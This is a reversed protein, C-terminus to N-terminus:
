MHIFVRGISCVTENKSSIQKTISSQREEVCATLMFNHYVTLTLELVSIIEQNVTQEANEKM